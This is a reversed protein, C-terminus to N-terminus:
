ARVGRGPNGPRHGPSSQTFVQYGTEPRYRHIDRTDLAQMYEIADTSIIPGPVLVPFGPPYHTVFIAPM